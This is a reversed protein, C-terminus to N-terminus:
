DIVKYVHWTIGHALREVRKCILGHAMGKNWNSRASGNEFSGIIVCELKVQQVVANIRIQVTM